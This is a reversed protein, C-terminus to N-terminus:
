ATNPTRDVIESMVITNHEENLITNLYMEHSNIDHNLNDRRTTLVDTQVYGSDEATRMAVFCDHIFKRDKSQVVPPTNQENIIHAMVKIQYQSPRNKNLIIVSVFKSM